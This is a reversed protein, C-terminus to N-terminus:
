PQQCKQYILGQLNILALDQEYINIYQIYM